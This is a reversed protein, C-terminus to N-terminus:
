QIREHRPGFGAGRPGVAPRAHERVLQAVFPRATMREQHGVLPRDAELGRDGEVPVLTRVRLRKAQQGPDASTPGHADVEM